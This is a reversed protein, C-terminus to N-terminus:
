PRSFVFKPEKVTETKQKIECNNNEQWSAADREM